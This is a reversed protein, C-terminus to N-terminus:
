MDLEDFINELNQHYSKALMQAFLKDSAKKSAEFDEAEAREIATARLDEDTNILEGSLIKMRELTELVEYEKINLDYNVDIQLKKMAKIIPAFENDINKKVRNFVVYINDNPIGLAKLTTLTKLTDSTQKTDAVTPVIFNTIMQLIEPTKQIEVLFVDVVSAGIDLISNKHKMLDFFMDKLNSADYKVVNVNFKSSSSNHTELEVIVKSEDLFQYLGRSLNSKGV